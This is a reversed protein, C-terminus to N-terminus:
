WTAVLARGAETAHKTQSPTILGLRIARALTAQWASPKESTALTPSEHVERMVRALADPEPAAYVPREVDVYGFVDLGIARCAIVHWITVEPDGARTPDAQMRGIATACGETVPQYVRMPGRAAVLRARALAHTHRQVQGRAIENHAAEVREYVGREVQWIRYAALSRGPSKPVSVFVPPAHPYPRLSAAIEAPTAGEPRSALFALIRGAPTNPKPRIM